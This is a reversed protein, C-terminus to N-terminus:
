NPHYELRYLTRKKYQYLARKHTADVGMLGHQSAASMRALKSIKIEKLAKMSKHLVFRFGEGKYNKRCIKNEVRARRLLFGQM